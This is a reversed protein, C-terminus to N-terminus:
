WQLFTVLFKTFFGPWNLTVWTSRVGLELRMCLTVRNCANSTRQSRTNVPQVGIWSVNLLSKNSVSNGTFYKNFFFSNSYRWVTCNQIRSPWKIEKLWEFIRWFKLSAHCEHNREQKPCKCWCIIKM